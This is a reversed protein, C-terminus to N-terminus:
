HRHRLGVFLSFHFVNPTRKLPQTVAHGGDKSHRWCAALSFSFTAASMLAATVDNIEVGDTAAM